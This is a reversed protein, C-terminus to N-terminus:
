VDGFKTLNFILRFANLSSRLESVVKIMISRNKEFKLNVKPILLMILKHM